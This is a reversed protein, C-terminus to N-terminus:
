QMFYEQEGWPDAVRLYDGPGLDFDTFHIAIYTAGRHTLEYQWRLVPEGRPTGKYGHPTDINVKIHEGAQMQASAPAATFAPGLVVVTLLLGRVCRVNRM